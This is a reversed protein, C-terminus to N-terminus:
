IELYGTVYDSYLQARLQVSNLSHQQPESAFLLFPLAYLLLLVVKYQMM